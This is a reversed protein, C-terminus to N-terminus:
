SLFDERAPSFVDVLVGPKLCVCGHLVHPPVYYSDGAKLIEKKGGITLEFEGSEVYAVQSHFHEHIQGIAGKEFAVKVLMIKGDYGMMQRKIGAEVEEWPTRESFFFEKTPEIEM